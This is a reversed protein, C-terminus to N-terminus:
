QFLLFIIALNKVISPREYKKVLILPMKTPAADPVVFPCTAVNPSSPLVIVSLPFVAYLLGYLSKELVVGLLSLYALFNEKRIFLSGFNKAIAAFEELARPFGEIMDQPLRIVSPSSGMCSFLDKLSEWFRLFSGQARCCGLVAIGAIALCALFHYSVKKATRLGKGHERRWASIKERRVARREERKHARLAASQRKKRRKEAAEKARLEKKQGKM